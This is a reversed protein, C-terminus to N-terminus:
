DTLARLAADTADFAQRVHPEIWRLDAADDQVLMGLVEDAGLLVDVLRDLIREHSFQRVPALYDAPVASHVLHM